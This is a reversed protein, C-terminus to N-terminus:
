GLAVGFALTEPGWRCGLRSSGNTRVQFPGNWIMHIYSPLSWLKAADNSQLNMIPGVGMSAKVASSVRLAKRYLLEM